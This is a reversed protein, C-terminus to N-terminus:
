AATKEVRRECDVVPDSAQRRGQERAVIVEASQLALHRNRHHRATPVQNTYTTKDARDSLPLHRNLADGIGGWQGEDADSGRHGHGLPAGCGEGDGKAARRRLGDGGRQQEIGVAIGVEDEERRGVRRQEKGRFVERSGLRHRQEGRGIRIVDVAPRQDEDGGAVDHHRCDDQYALVFPPASDVDDRWGQQAGIAHDPFALRSSHIVLVQNGYGVVLIWIRCQHARRWRAREERDPGRGDGARRGVRRAVLGRAGEDDVHATLEIEGARPQEVTQEIDFARSGRHHCLLAEFERDLGILHNRHPGAQGQNPRQGQADM